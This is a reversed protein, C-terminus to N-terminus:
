SIVLLNSFSLIFGFYIKLEYVLQRLVQRSLIKVECYKYIFMILFYLNIFNMKFEQFFVFKEGFFFKKEVFIM